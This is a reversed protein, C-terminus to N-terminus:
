FKKIYRFPFNLNFSIYVDTVSCISPISSVSGKIAVSLNYMGTHFSRLIESLFFIIYYIIYYLIIYYLIIYYLIIIGLLAINARKAALLVPSLEAIEDATIGKLDNATRLKVELM